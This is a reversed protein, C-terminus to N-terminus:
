SGLAYINKDLIITATITKTYKDERSQITISYLLVSMISFLLFGSSLEVKSKTAANRYLIDIAVIIDLM